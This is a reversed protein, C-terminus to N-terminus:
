QSPAVQLLVVCPAAGKRLKDCAEIAAKGAADADPLDALAIASAAPKGDRVFGDDPSAALAAHGARSTVFLSLAQDNTAVLRLTSLEEETLFPHLYLTVSSAGNVSVESAVAEQAMAPRTTGFLAGIIAGVSVAAALSVTLLAASSGM